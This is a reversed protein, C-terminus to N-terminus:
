KARPRTMRFHGRTGGEARVTWFGKVMSDGIFTGGLAVGGHTFRPNFLLGVTDGSIILGMVSRLADPDSELLTTSPVPAIPGNPWFPTFDIDFHGWEVRQMARKEEESMAPASKSRGKFNKPRLHKEFRLSGQIQTGPQARTLAGASDLTISIDWKGRLACCEISTASPSTAARSSCAPLILVVAAAAIMSADHAGLM